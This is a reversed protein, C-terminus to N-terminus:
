SGGRNLDSPLVLTELARPVKEYSEALALYEPHISMDPEITRLGLSVASQADSISGFRGVGIGALLAAGLLTTESIDVIEVPCGLVNAKIRLWLDNRHGGGVVRLVTCPEGILGELPRLQDRVQLCLGEIAARAIEGSSTVTRIGIIAGPLKQLGYPGMGAVLAPFFKVGGAGLGAKEAERVLTDWNAQPFAIARIWNLVSGAPMNSFSVYANDDVYPAWDIGRRFLAEDPSFTKTHALLTEWTGVLDLYRCGSAGGSVAMAAVEVDHGAMAVPLGRPLGLDDAIAPRIQGLVEGPRIFPAFLDTTVGAAKLMPDSWCGHALDYAVATSANTPDTRMEGTLWYCMMDPIMLWVANDLVDPRNEHLWAWKCLTAMPSIHYGTTGYIVSPTLATEIRTAQGESRTDHWSIAPYRHRGGRSFPAGDAGFGTVGLALPEVGDLRRVVERLADFAKRRIRAIDWIVGGPQGKQPIPSNARHAVVLEVGSESFAGAKISTAGIDVGLLVGRHSTRHSTPLKPPEERSM